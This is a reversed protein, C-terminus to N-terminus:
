HHFRLGDPQIDFDGVNRNGAVEHTKTEYTPIVKRKTPQQQWNADRQHLTTIRFRWFFQESRCSNAVGGAPGVARSFMGGARLPSGGGWFLVQRADMRTAM